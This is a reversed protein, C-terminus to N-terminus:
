TVIGMTGWLWAYIFLTEDEKQAFDRLFHIIHRSPVM